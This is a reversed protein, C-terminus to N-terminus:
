MLVKRGICVSALTFRQHPYLRCFRLITEMFYVHTSCLSGSCFNAYDKWWFMQSTLIPDLLIWECLLVHNVSLSNPISTSELVTITAAFYFYSENRASSHKRTAFCLWIFIKTYNIKLQVKFDFIKKFGYNTIEKFFLPLRRQVVEQPPNETCLLSALGNKLEHM